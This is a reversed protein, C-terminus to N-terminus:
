RSCRTSRRAPGHGQVPRRRHRRHDDGRAGPVGQRRLQRGRRAEQRQGLRRGLQGPLGGDAHRLRDRGGPLGRPLAAGLGFGVAIPALIALLGPTALECRTAPASTSSRATSRAAPARWSGPIERFQRRVEFVVAGAALRGRQDGPRLVPLGRGRRDAPGGPEGPQGRQARRHPRAAGGRDREPQGEGRRHVRRQHVLGFLATAALVATAIAIGKTIAKTTNGVADLETLIAAGEDHVDGSM